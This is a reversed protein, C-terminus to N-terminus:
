LVHAWRTRKIVRHIQVPNVGYKQSLALHTTHGAAYETRIARVVLETLKCSGSREGRAVIEPHRRSWHANGRPIREPHTHSSHNSGRPVCEPHTRSGHRDGSATRGKSAADRANDAQTGVFLHSPNVCVPNDCHHLVFLGQPITGYHLVYSIRHARTKHYSKVTFDGYGFGSTAGTWPWCEDPGRRDVKEWFRQEMTKHKMAEGSFSARASPKDLVAHASNADPSGITAFLKM